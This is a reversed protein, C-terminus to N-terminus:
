NMGAMAERDGSGKRNDTCECRYGQLVFRYNGFSMSETYHLIKEGAILIDTLYLRLDRCM